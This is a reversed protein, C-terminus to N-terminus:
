SKCGWSRRTGGGPQEVPAHHRWGRTGSPPPPHRPVRPLHLQERPLTSNRPPPPPQPHTHFANCGEEEEEEGPLWRGRCSMRGPGAAIAYFPTLLLRFEETSTNRGWSRPSVLFRPCRAWGPLPVGDRPAEGQSGQGWLGKAEGQSLCHQDRPVRSVTAVRFEDTLSPSHSVGQSACIKICSCLWSLLGWHTGHGPVPQSM